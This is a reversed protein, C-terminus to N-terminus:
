TAALVIVGAARGRSVLDRMGDAFDSREQRDGATLYHALEDCVVVHLPDGDGEAVKRRCSGLLVRYRREMEARLEALVGVAESVSVGVSREACRAWAALEVLKGDLLWLKVSPDLAAAAVLLNLAGSKGAGPEGGLLVNREPLSVMAVEGDDDIGVPVPRWLSLRTADVEPWALPTPSALPDRRVIVVRGRRADAPDRVVRVDRVSMAAAIAEAADELHGVTGGGPVAVTLSDGAPTRRVRWVRPMQERFGGIQALRIAANFRRRVSAAHLSRGVL